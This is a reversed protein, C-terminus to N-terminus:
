KFDIRTWEGEFGKLLVSSVRYTKKDAKAVIQSFMQKLDRRKPTLIVTIQESELVQADFDKEQPLRFRGRQQEGNFETLSHVPELTEWRLVDQQKLFVTGSSVLNEQLMPSHYTRVWSAQLSDPMNVELIRALVDQASACLGAAVFFVLSILLRKIM